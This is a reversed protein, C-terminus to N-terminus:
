ETKELTDSQVDPSSLKKVQYECLLANHGYFQNPFLVM